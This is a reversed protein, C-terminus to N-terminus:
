KMICVRRAPCKTVGGSLQLTIRELFPLAHTVMFHV